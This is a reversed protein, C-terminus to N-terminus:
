NKIIILSNKDRNTKKYYNECKFKSIRLLSGFYEQKKNYSSVCTELNKLDANILSTISSDKSAVGINSNDVIIHNVELISREGVSLGKDGCNLLVAKNM